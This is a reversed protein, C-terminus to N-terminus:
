LCLFITIFFITIFAFCGVWHALLTSIFFSLVLLSDYFGHGSCSETLFAGLFPFVLLLLQLPFISLSLSKWSCYGFVWHKHWGCNLFPFLCVSELRFSFRLCFLNLSLSSVSSNGAVLLCVVVRSFMQVFHCM